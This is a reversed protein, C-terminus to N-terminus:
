VTNKNKISANQFLVSYMLADEALKQRDKQSLVISLNDILKKLYPKVEKVKIEQKRELAERSFVEAMKLSGRYYGIAVRKLDMALSSIAIQNKDM